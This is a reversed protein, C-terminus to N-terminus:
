WWYRGGVNGLRELVDRSACISVQGFGAMQAM